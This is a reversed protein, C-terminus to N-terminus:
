EAISIQQWKNTGSTNHKYYYLKGSTGHFWGFAYSMNYGKLLTVMGYNEPADTMKIANENNHIFSVERNVGIATLIDGTTGSATMVGLKDLTGYITKTGLPEGTAGSINKLAGAQTTAGTGGSGVNLPKRLQTENTTLIMANLLTGSGDRLSIAGYDGGGQVRIGYTQNNGATLFGNVGLNGTITDGTKSVAGVDAANLVVDGNNGNVSMVYESHKHEAEAAGISTPTIEVEGSEGNVKTVVEYDEITHTHEVPAAGVDAATLEVDGVKGCVSNILSAGQAGRAGDDGKSGKLDASSTGSDSTVTLITGNWEHKIEGAM